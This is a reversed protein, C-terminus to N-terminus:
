ASDLRSADGAAGSTSGGAKGPSLRPVRDKWRLIPSEFWAFSMAALGLTSAAYVLFLLAHRLDLLGPTEGFWHNKLVLLPFHIVYIGYSIRGLYRLWPHELLPKAEPSVVCYAVAVGCVLNLLTYGWVYAHNRMLYMDYGFAPWFVGGQRHMVLVHAVGVIGAVLLSALLTRRRVSRLWEPAVVLLAGTAFADLSSLPNVYIAQGLLADAYGWRSLGVALAARLVPGLAILALVLSRFHRPAVWYVVAPWVLYFQEEVALSWFHIFCESVDAATMRLFNTTYTVLWPWSADFRAPVKWGLYAVAAVAIALYNLPFIRLTRRWYFRGFYQGANRDRTDVLGRTILFGSLVFFLQVGVWGPFCYGYHFLVVLTVAIGRLGDLSPYHM